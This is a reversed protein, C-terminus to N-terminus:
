GRASCASSRAVLAPSARKSRPETLRAWAAAAAHGPEPDTLLVNSAPPPRLTSMVVVAPASAAIWSPMSLLFPLRRTRISISNGPQSSDRSSDHGVASPITRPWSSRRIPTRALTTSSPRTVHDCPTVSCPSVVSRPTTASSALSSKMSGCLVSCAVSFRPPELRPKSGIVTRVRTWRIVRTFMRVPSYTSPGLMTSTEIELRPKSPASRRLASASMTRLIRESASLCNRSMMSLAIRLNRATSSAHCTGFAHAVMSSVGADFVFVSCRPSVPVTTARVSAFGPPAGPLAVQVSTLEALAGNEGPAGDAFGAVIVWPATVSAPGPMLTDAVNLDTEFAPTACAVQVCGVSSRTTLVIAPVKLPVHPNAPDVKVHVPLAVKLRTRGPGPALPAKLSVAPDYVTVAEPVSALPPVVHWCDPVLSIM